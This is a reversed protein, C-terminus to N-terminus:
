RKTELQIGLSSSKMHLLGQQNGAKRVGAFGEAGKEFRQLSSGGAAVLGEPASRAM